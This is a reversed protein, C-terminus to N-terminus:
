WRMGGAGRVCEYVRHNACVTAGEQYEKDDWYCVGGAAAAKPQLHNAEIPTNKLQPDQPKVPVAKDPTNM